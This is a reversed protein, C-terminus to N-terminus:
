LAQEGRRMQFPLSKVIELVLTSFRYDDAALQKTIQKVTSRDYRELGRGLAYTLLKETLGEAFSDRDARLITKLERPGKFSRGDPLTGTADIAFKGDRVRWAGIADFNELGFGLPDMRAHCSACTPNARHQELQERLPAAQGIKAEDLNPVDPPDGPLPDLIFRPASGATERAVASLGQYLALPRDEPDLYPM